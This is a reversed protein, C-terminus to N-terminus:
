LQENYIEAEIEAVDEQNLVFMQVRGTKFDDQSFPEVESESLFAIGFPILRRLHRLANPTLVVKICNQTIEGYTFNFYWSQMRPCYELYFDATDNNDLVLTHQQKAASTLTTIRKM